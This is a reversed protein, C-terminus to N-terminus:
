PDMDELLYAPLSLGVKEVSSRTARRWTSSLTAHPRGDTSEAVCTVRLRDGETGALRARSRFLKGVRPLRLPEFTMPGSASHVREGLTLATWYSTEMMTMFLLGIHMLGPWGIEDPKPTYDSVIEDAGDAGTRREFSLRFGREHRPGCGFCPSEIPNELITMPRRRFDRAM